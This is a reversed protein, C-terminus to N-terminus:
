IETMGSYVPAENEAWTKHREWAGGALTLAAAVDDRGTNGMGLKVLRMSGADDHRVRVVALSATLLATASPVVSMPGDKTMKRLARIDESSESWRTVRGIIPIRHDDNWDYAENVRFRDGVM